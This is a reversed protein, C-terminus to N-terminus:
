AGELVSSVIKEDVEIGYGGDVTKMSGISSPLAFVLAKSDSKKDRQMAEIIEKSPYKPLNTSLSFSELLNNQRKVADASIFGLAQSIAAEAAMGISVAQGHSFKSYNGLLEIAHGVTHGYNVIKRLNQELEDKEVIKAKIECNKAVLQELIPLDKGLIREKNAEIFDFLAKNAIVAHKISEAMGISMQADPLSKLCAIDAFVAKPQYFAGCSNKGGVLDVAVKGGISSDVMALLTTPVQVYSIGRMYTAAVFGALDGTVGGGLAIVASKRNFGLELMKNQIGELVSLAKSKEGVPFSFLSANLGAAKLDAVLKEGFLKATSSDCIVAYNNGIPGSSLISPIKELLGEEIFIKYSRNAGATLKVEVSQM